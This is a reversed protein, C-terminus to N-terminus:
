RTGTTRTSSGTSTRGARLRLRPLQRGHVRRRRGLTGDQVARPLGRLPEDLALARRVVHGPLESRRGDDVPVPRARRRRRRRATLRWGARRAPRAQLLNGVARGDRPRRRRHLAARRHRPPHGATSRRRRDRVDLPDVTIEGEQLNWYTWMPRDRVVEGSPTTIDITESMGLMSWFRAAWPGPAIM